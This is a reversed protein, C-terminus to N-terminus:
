PHPFGQTFDKIKKEVNDLNPLEEEHIVLYNFENELFFETKRNDREFVIPKNHAWTGHVDICHKKGLYFDISWKSIRKQTSYVLDLKDLIKSVEKEILTDYNKRRVGIGLEKRRKAVCTDTVGYERAIEIHSLFPNRLKDEVEKTKPLYIKYYRERKLGLLKIIEIVRRYDIGIADAIDSVKEQYHEEIYDVQWKDIKQFTRNGVKIM